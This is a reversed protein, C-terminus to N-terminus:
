WRKSKKPAVKPKGSSKSSKKSKVIVEKSVIEEEEDDHGFWYFYGGTAAGALIILIFLIIWPTWNIKETEQNNTNEAGKIQGQEVPSPTTPTTVTPAPTTSSSGTSFSVVSSTTSAVSTVTKAALTAFNSEVVGVAEPSGHSIVRFYYTVSPTLGSITVSHSTVLTANEATSFAYGYNPASGIVSHSTTDYVIRSTSAHDTTWTITATTSTVNTSGQSSIIPRTDTIVITQKDSKAWNGAVDFIKVYYTIPTTSLPINKVYTFPSANGTMNEWAGGNFCITASVPAINDTAAVSITTSGGINATNGSISTIVPKEIDVPPMITTPDGVLNTNIATVTKGNALIVTAEVKNAPVTQGFEAERVNTWYGDTTYDFTGSVDFPSSIQTGTVDVNVKSIIATNTQLLTDGSYLKEIISTAGTFTANTLGFGATYGKLVGLGTNYNVVGFDEPSLTGLKDTKFNLTDGHNWTSGTKTWATFYYTTDSEVSSLDVPIGATTVSSLQANFSNGAAVPGLDPTSYVGYPITPSSVDFTAKSIWFSHGSAATDGNTGNLTTDFATINSAVNTTVVAAAEAKIPTWVKTLWTPTLMGFALTVILFKYLFKKM